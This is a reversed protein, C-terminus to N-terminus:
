PGGLEVEFLEPLAADLALPLRQHPWHYDLRGSAPRYAATFLTAFGADWERALLPPQHLPLPSLEDALGKPKKPFCPPFSRFSVPHGNEALLKAWLETHRREVDALKEYTQRKRPDPEQSALVTYLFAADGEDQWHHLWLHLTQRDVSM